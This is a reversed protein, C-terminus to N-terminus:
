NLVDIEKHLMCTDLFFILGKSKVKLHFKRCSFRSIHDKVLFNKGQSVCIKLEGSSSALTLKQGADMQNYVKEGSGSLM